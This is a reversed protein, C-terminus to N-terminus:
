TRCYVSAATENTYHGAPAPVFDLPTAYDKFLLCGIENPVDRTTNGFYGKPIPVNYALLASKCTGSTGYGYCQEICQNWNAEVTDSSTYYAQYLLSAALFDASPQWECAQGPKTRSFLPGVNPLADVITCNDPKPVSAPGGARQVLGARALVTAVYCSILLTTKM